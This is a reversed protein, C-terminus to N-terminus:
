RDKWSSVHLWQSQIYISGYGAGKLQLSSIAFSGYLTHHFSSSPIGLFVISFFIGFLERVKHVDVPIENSFLCYQLYLIINSVLSYNM